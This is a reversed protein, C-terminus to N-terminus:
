ASVTKIHNKRNTPLLCISQRVDLIVLTFAAGLIADVIACLHHHYAAKDGFM